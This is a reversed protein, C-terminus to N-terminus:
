RRGASNPADHVIAPPTPIRGKAIFQTCIPNTPSATAVTAAQLPADDVMGIMPESALVEMGTFGVLLLPLVLLPLVLLPPRPLPLLPLLPPLLLL